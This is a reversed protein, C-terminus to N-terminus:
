GGDLVNVINPHNLRTLLRVERSLRHRVDPDADRHLMKLAVPREVSLQVAEYVIGM